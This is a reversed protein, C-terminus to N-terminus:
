IIAFDAATLALGTGLTAIQVSGGAANGNSDYYLAGTAPDYIIHDDGDAAATGVRFQNASLTGAKGVVAYVDNELRITDDIVSFDTILDRNTSNSPMTDFVFTDRGLGGTLTDNGDRGGIVNDGANGVIVQAFENGTLKIAGTSSASTTALTEVEQGAALAYTNSVLVVDRGGNANEYVADSANDAFYTDNGAGGIMTDAGGMGDITNDLANGTIANAAANGIGRSATSGTLLTLAEVNAQLAYDTASVILDAGEDLGETIRDGADDAYYTDNGAGGVMTDAGGRGDLVNVGANGEIVQGIENGTLNISATGSYNTTALREISQGAAVVYSVTAYVADIGANTAERVADGASDVYYSDNGAFGSMTDAGGRGDLINSGANGDIAQAFENGTLNIAATGTPSAAALHLVAQGSGLVHSESVLVTGPPPLTEVGATHWGIPASGNTLNSGVTTSDRASDLGLWGSRDFSNGYIQINESPWPPNHVTGTASISIEYRHAVDHIWNGTLEVNQGALVRIGQNRTNEVENGIVRVDRVEYQSSGIFGPWFYAEETHGGVGIGFNGAGDVHNGEILVDYSGGKVVIGVGSSGSVDNHAIVLHHVGVCDIAEEGGTSGTITNNLLSINEAKSVKIGDGGLGTINCNQIVINTAPDFLSGSVHAHIHVANASANSPGQVAFGDIVVHDARSVEITDQSQDAPRIEAAGRGDISVIRLPQDITGGRTIDLNETYVGAAVMITAGAAAHNIADQISRFPDGQTGAAGTHGTTSVWIVQGSATDISSSM